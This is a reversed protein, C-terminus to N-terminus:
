AEAKQALEGKRRDDEKVERIQVKGNVPLAELYINWSGDHNLFASGIRNWYSKKGSGEGREVINYAGWPKKVNVSVNEM